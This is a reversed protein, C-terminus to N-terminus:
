LTLRTTPVIVVPARDGWRRRFEFIQEADPKKSHILIADAGAAHYAEARRLAEDCARGAADVFIPGHWVARLRRRDRAHDGRAVRGVRDRLGNARREAAGKGEPLLADM